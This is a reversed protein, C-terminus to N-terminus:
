NPKSRVFAFFQECTKLYRETEKASSTFKRNFEVGWSDLDRLAKRAELDGYGFNLM